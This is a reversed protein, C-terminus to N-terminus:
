EDGAPTPEQLHNLLTQLKMRPIFPWGGETEIDRLLRYLARRNAPLAAQFFDDRIAQHLKELERLLLLLVQADEQHDKALQYFRDILEQSEPLAEPALDHSRNMADIPHM